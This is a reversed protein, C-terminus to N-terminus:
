SAEPRWTRDGHGDAERQQYLHKENKLEGIQEYLESLAAQHENQLQDIALSHNYCLQEREVTVETIKSILNNVELQHADRLQEIQNTM